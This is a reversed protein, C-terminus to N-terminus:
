VPIVPDGFYKRAQAEDLQFHCVEEDDCVLVPVKLGYIEKWSEKEDVDCWVMNDMLHPWSRNVIAVMEECLHCGNRYYFKVEQEM